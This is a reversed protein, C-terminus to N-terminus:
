LSIKEEGYKLIKLIDQKCYAIHIAQTCAVYFRLEANAIDPLQTSVICLKAVSCKIFKNYNNCPFKQFSSLHTADGSLYVTIHRM